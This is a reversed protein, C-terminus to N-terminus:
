AAADQRLRTLLAGLGTAEADAPDFAVRLGDPQSGGVDFPIPSLGEIRLTGTAGLPLPPADRVSAGSKSLDVVRAAHSAQGPISLDCALDVSFRQYNRRDVESTSTRVVRILSDRLTGIAGNLATADGRLAAAHRSTHEAEGSVESVRKTVDGTAAASEAVSRAIEATAADQREVAEAISATIAEFEGITREIRDVSAVSTSTATRVEDIRQSIERTSQATQAALQKVENAVVAFGRGADGARAAEITANLALLNTKGAIEAIMDAVTGIRAVQGNMAEIAERTMRGAAIARRVVIVSQSAQGGIERVSTALQEAATAVTEATALSQTAATEADRAAVGTREASTAMADAVDEMVGTRHGVQEMAEATQHEIAEAMGRLAARKEEAAVREQRSRATELELRAIANQRFVEIASAMAGIEDGSVDSPIASTTDGAALRVMAETM